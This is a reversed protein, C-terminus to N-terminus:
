RANESLVERNEIAKSNHEKTQRPIFVNVIDERLVELFMDYKEFHLIIQNQKQEYGKYNELKM